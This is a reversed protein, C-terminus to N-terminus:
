GGKRLALIMDLCAQHRAIREAPTRRLSEELLAMDCGYARAQEWASVTRRQLQKRMARRLVTYGRIFVFISVAFLIKQRLPCATLEM